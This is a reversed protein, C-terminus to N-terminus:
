RRQDGAPVSPFIRQDIQQEVTLPHVAEGMRAEVRAGVVAGATRQRRRDRCTEAAPHLEYVGDLAGATVDLLGELRGKREAATPSRDIM